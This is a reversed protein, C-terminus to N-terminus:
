SPLKLEPQPSLCMWPRTRYYSSSVHPILDVLLGSSTCTRYQLPDHVSLLAIPAQM